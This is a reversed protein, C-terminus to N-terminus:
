LRKVKGSSLLFISKKDMLRFIRTVTEPGVVGLAVIVDYHGGYSWVRAVDEWGESEQLSLGPTRSVPKGLLVPLAYGRAELLKVFLPDDGIILISATEEPYHEEIRDILTAYKHCRKSKISSVTQV